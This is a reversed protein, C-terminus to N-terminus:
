TTKNIRLEGSTIQLPTPFYKALAEKVWSAAAKTEFLIITAIVGDGADVHQYRIFGTVASVIPVFGDEVLCVM